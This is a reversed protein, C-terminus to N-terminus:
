IAAADRVETQGPAKNRTNTRTLNGRSDPSRRCCTALTRCFSHSPPLPSPRITFSFPALSHHGGQAVAFPNFPPEALKHRGAAAVPRQSFRQKRQTSSSARKSMAETRRPIPQVVLPAIQLAKARNFESLSCSSIRKLLSLEIGAGAFLSSMKEIAGLLRWSFGLGVSVCVWFEDEDNARM